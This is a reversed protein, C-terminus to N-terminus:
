YHRTLRPSPSRPPTVGQSDTIHPRAHAHTAATGNMEKQALTPTTVPSPPLSHQLGPATSLAIGSKNTLVPSSSSSFTPPPASTARGGRALAGRKRAERAESRRVATSDLFRLQPLRHLVHMRYTKYDREDGVGTLQDPCAKNGLLSLYRLNPLRDGIQDLLRGLDSVKNKNLSLTHLTDLHPLTVGDDIFNNDLVLEELYPFRELGELSRIANFSLDLRKTQMGYTAGLISPIRHCDQGVFCLELKLVENQPSRYTTICLHATMDGQTKLSCYRRRSTLPIGCEVCEKPYQSLSPPSHRTDRTHQSGQTHQRDGGERDEGGQRGLALSLATFPAPPISLGFALM